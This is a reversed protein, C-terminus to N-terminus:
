KSKKFKLHKNGVKTQASNTQINTDNTANTNNRITDVLITTNITINTKKEEDNNRRHSTKEESTSQATKSINIKAIDAWTPKTKPADKGTSENNNNNHQSQYKIEEEEKAKCEIEKSQNQIQQKRIYQELNLLIIHDEKAPKYLVIGKIKQANSQKNFTLKNKSNIIGKLETYKDSIRQRVKIEIQSGNEINIHPLLTQNKTHVPYTKGHTGITTIQPKRAAGLLQNTEQIALDCPACMLKSTIIRNAQQHQSFCIDDVITPLIQLEAHIDKHAGNENFFLTGPTDHQIGKQQITQVESKLAMVFDKVEAAKQHNHLFSLHAKITDISTDNNTRDINDPYASSKQKLTAALEDLKDDFDNSSLLNKVIDHMNQFDKKDVRNNSVIFRDDSLQYLAVCTSNGTLIKAAVLMYVEKTSLQEEHPKFAAFQKGHPTDELEALQDLEDLQNKSEM